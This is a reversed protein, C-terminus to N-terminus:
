EDGKEDPPKIEMNKFKEELKEIEESEALNYWKGNLKISQSVPLSFIGGIDIDIESMVDTVSDPFGCLEAIEGHMYIPSRNISQRIKLDKIVPYNLRKIIFRKVRGKIDM